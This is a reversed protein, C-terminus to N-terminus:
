NESSTVPTSSAEVPVPSNKVWAEMQKQLSISAVPHLLNVQILRKDAGFELALMQEDFIPKGAGGGPWAVILIGKGVEWTYFFFRDDEYRGMPEGLSLLVDARSTTGPELAKISYDSIQHGAGGGYRPTPIYLCGGVVTTLLLLLLLTGQLLHRPARIV